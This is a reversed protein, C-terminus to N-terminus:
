YQHSTLETVESAYYVDSALTAREGAWASMQVDFLGARRLEQRGLTQVAAFHRDNGLLWTLQLIGAASIHNTVRYSKSHVSLPFTLVFLACSIGLGIALPTVNFNPRMRIAAIQVRALRIRVDNSRSSPNISHVDTNNRNREYWVVAAIARTLSDQFESLLISSRRNHSSTAVMLDELLFQDLVSATPAQVSRGLQTTDNVLTYDIHESARSSNPASHSLASINQLLPDTPSKLPVWRKWLVEPIVPARDIPQRTVASVVTTTNAADINCAFVQVSDMVWSDLGRVVAMAPSIKVSTASAGSADTVPFTSTVMLTNNVVMGQSARDPYVSLVPTRLSLAVPDSPWTYNPTISMSRTFDVFEESWGDRLQFADPVTGCDVNFKTANVLTYGGALPIVPLIDYVMNDRLGLQSFQNYVNLIDWSAADAQSLSLSWPRALQTTQLTPVTADYTSVGVSAPITIHLVAVGCLYIAIFVVNSVAAPIRIQDVLAMLSSGLGLWATLKDHIATLTQQTHLDRILAQRQTLLVLGALYLTSFTQAVVSVTVSMTTQRALTFPYDLGHEYHRSAIIVLTTYLIILVVHMLHCLGAEYSGLRTTM